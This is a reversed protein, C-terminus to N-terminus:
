VGPIARRRQTDWRSDLLVEATVPTLIPPNREISATQGPPTTYRSLIAMSLSSPAGSLNTRMTNIFGGLSNAAAATAGGATDNAIEGWGWQYYRGNYSRGRLGTKLTVVLATASPLPKGTATGPVAAGAGVFWPDSNATMSRVEVRNLAASTHLQAPLLSTTFASKVVTSISDARSQTMSTGTSNTFHLINLAWPVGTATWVLKVEVGNTVPLNGAM